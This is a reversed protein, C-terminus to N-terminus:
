ATEKTENVMKVLQLSDFTPSLSNFLKKLVHPSLHCVSWLEPIKECFRIVCKAHNYFNQLVNQLWGRQVDFERAVDWISQKKLLRKIMFFIYIKAFKSKFRHQSSFELLLQPHSVDFLKSFLKFENKEFNELENYLIGENAKISINNQLLIYILHEESSLIIGNELHNDLERKVSVAVDPAFNANQTAIGLSTAVYINCDIKIMGFELLKALVCNLIKIVEATHEYGYLTSYMIKELDERTKAMSFCIMDLLLVQFNTYNNIGKVMQSTCKICSLEIMQRFKKEKEKSTIITISDGYNNLGARGARGVMQIYQSKSMIENHLFPDKIIVRRAPLNVGAALTSTACLTHLIGSKFATEIRDREEVTIGSHHYCVGVLIGYEMIECIRGGNDNRIMEILDEKRPDNDAYVPDEALIESLLSCLNECSDKTPCFILVSQNPILPKLFPLIGSSDRSDYYSNNNIQGPIPILRKSDGSEELYYMKNLIKVKQDLRVPRFDVSLVHAKMFKKLYTMDDLTASLGIIQGSLTMLYKTIMQEIFIGRNSEGIMHLEDIVMLGIENIRRTAILSNILINAKEITAIYITGIGKEFKVPPIAGKGAAYDLINIDFMTKLEMLLNMKEQVIAVYPLVILCSKKNNIIERLMLLEAIMTKGSGTPLSLIINSGRLLRPDCLCEKQWDYLKSIKRENLYYEYLQCPLHLKLFVDRDSLNKYGSINMSNSAHREPSLNSYSSLMNNVCPSTFENVAKQSCEMLRGDVNKFKTVIDNNYNLPPLVKRKKTPVIDENEIDLDLGLIQWSKVFCVQNDKCTQSVFDPPVSM